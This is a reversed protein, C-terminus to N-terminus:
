QNWIKLLKSVETGTFIFKSFRMITSSWFDPGNEDMEDESEVESNEQEDQINNEDEMEEDYNSDDSDNAEYNPDALSDDSNFDEFDSGSSLESLNEAIDELERQTLKRKKGFM